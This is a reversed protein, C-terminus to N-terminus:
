TYKQNIKPTGTKTKGKRNHNMCYREFNSALLNQIEYLIKEEGFCFCFPMSLIPSTPAVTAPTAVGAEISSAVSVPTLLAADCSPTCTPMSPLSANSIM